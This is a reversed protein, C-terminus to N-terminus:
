RDKQSLPVARVTDGDGVGLATAAYPLLPFRDIRSPAHVIVVRFDAFRRNSVLWRIDDTLSDPVPDEEGLHVPLVVSRRVARIDDRFCELPIIWGFRDGSEKFPVDAIGAFM